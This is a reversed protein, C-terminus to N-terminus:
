SFSLLATPEASWAQHMVIKDPTATYTRCCSDPRREEGNGPHLAVNAELEGSDAMMDSSGLLGQLQLPPAM